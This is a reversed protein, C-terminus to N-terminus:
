VKALWLWRRHLCVWRVCCCATLALLLLIGQFAVSLKPGAGKLGGKELIAQNIPNGILSGVSAAAYSSGFWKGYGSGALPVFSGTGVGMGFAVVYLAPANHDGFPIWVACIVSLTFITMFSVVNVPGWRVALWTPATRGLTAGINYAVQLYFVDGIGILSAFVPLSGWQTYLVLEFVQRGGTDASCSACSPLLVNGFNAFTFLLFDPGRLHGFDWFIPNYETPKSKVLLSGVLVLLAVMSSFCYASTKWEFRTFLSRFVLSFLIGGIPAGTTVIGMAFARHRSFWHDIVCFAVTTPVAGSIGAIIFCAMFHGYTTCWALSLLSLWYVVSAAPLVFRSGWRDFVLGFPLGLLCDLFAFVSGIWSIETPSLHSLQHEQWYVQCLGMASMLGYTAVTLCFSGVVVLVASVTAKRGAANFQGAAAPDERREIDGGSGATSALPRSDVLPSPITSLETNPDSPDAFHDMGGADASGM